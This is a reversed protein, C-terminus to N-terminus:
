GTASGAPARAARHARVRDPWGESLRERIAATMQAPPRTSSVVLYHAADHEALDLFHARVRRHFALDEAEMRDPGGRHRARALGEAPDLDLLVTLDPRLGGTAWRSIRDVEALDLERGAGQYALSSDIYRDTVVVAGRALAPRIVEDVHQARDAAYLLAEARAGLPEGEPGLLVGRLRAGIATGGPEQTVVVELGAERLWDALLAVQTSKGAGEGGEVAVFLGPHPPSMRPLPRGRLTYWLEGFVGIGRKDDMQRFAFMGVAIGMLGAGFLVVGTGTVRIQADNWLTFRHEGVAASLLPAAALVLLLVVRVLSQVLAFTRGRLADDVEAGLLTFGTIWAVGACFGLLVTFLLAVVLNPLVAIVVLAGGAGIIAIGFLRRRSFDALLRPGGLMGLALGSFLSGFLLGYGADGGKLVDVYVRGLGIVNGAAAFGGLIGLVLGRIMRDSGVFRWGEAISRLFGIPSDGGDGAPRGPRNGIETLRLVVAITVLRTGANFYLSLDVPNTSFFSSAAALVRNLLSLAAFLLAAVPATGYTAALSVQNGAELQEPPLLNPVSADKAPMWVMSVAEILFSAVFLYQLTGVLPISAFLACRLVDCVVMVLRRDFRDAIAGAVPGLLLAPLLRVILVGGVAASQSSTSGGSLQAALATTALLGLWDGLSSLALAGWLRRFPRIRLPARLDFRSGAPVPPVPVADPLAPPVQGRGRRTADPGEAASGRLRRQRGM